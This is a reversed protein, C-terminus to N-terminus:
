KNPYGLFCFGEFVGSQIFFDRLIQRVANIRIRANVSKQLACSFGEAMITLISM